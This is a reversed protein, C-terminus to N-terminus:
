EKKESKVIYIEKNRVKLAINFKRDPKKNYSRVRFSFPAYLTKVTKGEVEVKFMKEPSEIIEKFVADYEPIKALKRGQPIERVPTAKAVIKRNSVKELKPM